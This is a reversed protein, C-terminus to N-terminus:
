KLEKPWVFKHFLEDCFMYVVMFLKTDIQNVLSSDTPKSVVDSGEFISEVMVHTKHSIPRKAIRVFTM